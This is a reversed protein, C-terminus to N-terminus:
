VDLYNRVKAYVRVWLQVPWLRQKVFFPLEVIDNNFNFNKNGSMDFDMKFRNYKVKKCNTGEDEFGENTVKSVVPFCTTKGQLFQSYNFRIAWSSNKGKHWGDLLGFCDSGGWKNFAKRNQKVADWDKLEFDVSNWRDAWTAWGWCGARPAFYNSYNYGEPCKVRISEGSVSFVDKSDQYFDLGQNLFSLFNPATIIDDEVIIAKGYKNIVETVGASVSPALGKNKESFHYTLSKFGTIAKVFSRVAEVKEAEGVKQSRPGDVYVILDSDKSETNDLLALVCTKLPELRNFAFIVIPAYKVKNRM